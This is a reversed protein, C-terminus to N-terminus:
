QGGEEADRHPKEAQVPRDGAKGVGVQAAALAPAADAAPLIGLAVFPAAVENGM